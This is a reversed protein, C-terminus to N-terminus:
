STLRKRSQKRRQPKAHRAASILHFFEDYFGETSRGKVSTESWANVLSLLYDRPLPGDQWFATEWYEPNFPERAGEVLWGDSHLPSKAEIAAKLLTTAEGYAGIVFVQLSGINGHTLDSRVRRILSNCHVDCHWKRLFRLLLGLDQDLINPPLRARTVLELFLRITKAMEIEKNTFYIRRATSTTSGVPVAYMRALMPSSTLM